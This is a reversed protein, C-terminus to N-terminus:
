DEKFLHKYNLYIYSALITISDPADDPGTNGTKMFTEIVKLFKLYEPTGTRKFYFYKNIIWAYTIIRSMKNGKSLIGKVNKAGKTKLLSVYTNGMGNTECVMKMVGYLEMLMAMREASTESGEQTYIADHVYIKNGILSAFPAALYDNGQDAIDAAGLSIAGQTNTLSDYYNLDYLMGESAKPDQLFQASYDGENTGADEDNLAKKENKLIEHSLRTPDLLGDIYNDAWEKPQIIESEVAPLVIHKVNTLKSMAITTYDIPSLRQMLLIYLSTEKNTKRTQFEKFGEEASEMEVKSKAQRATTPDDEILIDGHNGIKSGKTTFSFRAGGDTNQYFTKASADKRIEIEPFLEKYKDSIIIDKSRMANKATLKDSNTSTLIIAEKKVAWCWAPIMQSIITSKTTGPCINVVIDCKKKRGHIADELHPQLEDCLAKIHWNDVLPESIIADWFYIIFEYLSKRCLEAQIYRNDILELTNAM